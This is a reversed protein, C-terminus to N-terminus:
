SYENNIVVVQHRDKLFNEIWKCVKGNIGFLKLKSLLKKLSLKDFARRYDYFTITWQVSWEETSELLQLKCSKGTM